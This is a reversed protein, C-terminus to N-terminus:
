PKPSPSIIFNHILGANTLQVRNASSRYSLYPGVVPYHQYLIQEKQSESLSRHKKFKNM